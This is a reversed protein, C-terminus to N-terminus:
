RCTCPTGQDRLLSNFAREAEEGTEQKKVQDRLLSNFALFWRVDFVYEEVESRALSFQFVKTISWLRM